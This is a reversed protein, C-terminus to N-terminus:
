PRCVLLTGSLSKTGQSVHKAFSIGQHELQAAGQDYNAAYAQSEM